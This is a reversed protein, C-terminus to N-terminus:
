PFALNEPETGPKQRGLHVCEDLLTFAVGRARLEVPALLHRLVTAGQATVEVQERSVRGRSAEEGDNTGSGPGQVVPPTVSGRRKLTVNRDKGRLSQSDGPSTERM